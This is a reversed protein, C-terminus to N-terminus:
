EDGCDNEDETGSCGCQRRVLDFLAKTQQRTLTAKETLLQQVVLDQMQQQGDMIEVQKVRIAERDTRDAAILDILERRLRNIKHCQRQSTKRFKQLRPEVERRQEETLGLKQVLECESTGTKEAVAPKVCAQGLWAAMLAGNLSVSLLVLWAKVTGLM